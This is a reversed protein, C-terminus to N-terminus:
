SKPNVDLLCLKHIDTVKKFSYNIRKVFSYCFISHLQSQYQIIKCTLLKNNVLVSLHSLTYVVYPWWYLLSGLGRVRAAAVAPGPHVLLDRERCYLLCVCEISLYIVGVLLCVRLYM